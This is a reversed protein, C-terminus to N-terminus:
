DVIYRGEGVDDNLLDERMCERYLEKRKDVSIRETRYLEDVKEIYYGFTGEEKTIEYLRIDFGMYSANRIVDNRQRMRVSTNM